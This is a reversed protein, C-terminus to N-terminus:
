VRTDARHHAGREPTPPTPPPSPQSHEHLTQRPGPSLPVLSRRILVARGRGAGRRAARGIEAPGVDKSALAQKKIAGM